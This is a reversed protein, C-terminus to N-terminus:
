RTAKRDDRRETWGGYGRGHRRRRREAGAPDGGSQAHLDCLQCPRGLSSVMAAAHVTHGCLAAYTGQRAVVGAAAAEDSVLHALGDVVCTLSSAHFAM